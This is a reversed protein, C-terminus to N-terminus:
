NHVQNPVQSSSPILPTTKSVFLATHDPREHVKGFWLEEFGDQQRIIRGIEVFATSAPSNKETVDIGAVMPLIAVETVTM